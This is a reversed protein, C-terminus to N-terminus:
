ASENETWSYLQVENPESHESMPIQCTEHLNCGNCADACKRYTQLYGAHRLHELMAEILEPTTGLMAALVGTEFTGGARIEALLRELM